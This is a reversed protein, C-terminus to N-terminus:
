NHMEPEQDGRWYSSFPLLTWAAGQAIGARVKVPFYQLRSATM